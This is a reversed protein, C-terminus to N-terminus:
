PWRRQQKKTNNNNQAARSDGDRGILTGIRLDALLL